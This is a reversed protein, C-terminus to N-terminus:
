EGQHLLTQRQKLLWDEHQARSETIFEYVLFQPAIKQLVPIISADLFPRHTDIAMVHRYAEMLKDFGTGTLRINERLMNEVYQGSLSQHLHVGHIHKSLEGHADIMADIYRAADPLCSLSRDTHMLHGIDLMIGKRRCPIQEILKGTFVPDTFSFGPWWLNEVLFYFPDSRGKLITSIMEAASDIVEEDSYRFRYSVTEQPSAESVHFVVYEAQLRAAIDLQRRYMDIWQEKCECGFAAHAASLFGFDETLRAIDNKWFPMWSPQYGLHIGITSGKPLAAPLTDEYLLLEFGDMHTNRLFSLADEADSFRAWDSEANSLNALTKM